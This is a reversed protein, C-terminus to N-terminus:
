RFHRLHHGRATCVNEVVAQGVAQLHCLYTTGAGTPQERLMLTFQHGATSAEVRRYHLSRRQSVIQTMWWKPVFRLLFQLPQKRPRWCAEGGRGVIQLVQECALVSASYSWDEAREGAAEFAIRLGEADHRLQCGVAM